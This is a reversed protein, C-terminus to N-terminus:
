DDFAWWIISAIVLVIIFSVLIFLFTKFIEWNCIVIYTLFVILFLITLLRIILKM